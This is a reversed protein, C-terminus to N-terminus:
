IEIEIYLMTKFKVAALFYFPKFEARPTVVFLKLLALFRTLNDNLFISKQIKLKIGLKCPSIRLARLQHGPMGAARRPVM